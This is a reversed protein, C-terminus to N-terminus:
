KPTWIASREITKVRLNLKCWLENILLERIKIDNYKFNNKLVKYIKNYSYYLHNSRKDYAFYYFNDKKFYIYDSRLEIRLGNIIMKLFDEASEKKKYILIDNISNEKNLVCNDLIMIKM